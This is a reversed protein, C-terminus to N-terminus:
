HAGYAYDKTPQAIRDFPHLSLLLIRATHHLDHVSIRPQPQSSLM